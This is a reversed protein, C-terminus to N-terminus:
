VFLSATHTPVAVWLLQFLGNTLVKLTPILISPCVPTHKTIYDYNKPM